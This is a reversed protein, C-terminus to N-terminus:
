LSKSYIWDLFDKTRFAEDWSNHGVGHFLVLEVNKSGLAKLKNYAEQSHIVPVVNDADGHYIRIPIKQVKKLREVSVGGCIPVAAAFTKPMRCILDFTGMGGMSLGLVYIRKTDVANNKKLQKILRILLQMPETPKQSNVFSFGNKADVIPAWYGEKPCQPFVVISPYKARNQENTFQLSGHKLQKENDNGREGSGHLFILLPYKETTQYNKPYMIRYHLTDSKYIFQKKEFLSNQAQLGTVVILFCIILFNIKHM